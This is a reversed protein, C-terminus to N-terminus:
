PGQFEIDTGATYGIGARDFLGRDAPNTGGWTADRKEKIMASAVPKVGPLASRDSRARLMSM